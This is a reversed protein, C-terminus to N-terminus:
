AVTQINLNLEHNCIHASNDTKNLKWASTQRPLRLNAIVNSFCSTKITGVAHSNYLHAFFVNREFLLLFNM